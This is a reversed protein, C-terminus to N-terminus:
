VSVSELESHKNLCVKKIPSLGGQKRQAYFLLYIITASLALYVTKHVDVYPFCNVLEQQSNNLTTAFSRQLPETITGM